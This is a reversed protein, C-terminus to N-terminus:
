RLHLHKYEMDFVIDGDILLVRKGLLSQSLAVNAIVMSKGAQAYASTICYIPCVENRSTYFLNTRLTKFSENIAFPTKNSILKNSYQRKLRRINLEKSM